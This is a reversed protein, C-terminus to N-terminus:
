HCPINTRVMRQTLLLCMVSPMTTERNHGDSWILHELRGEDDVTHCFFLDKDRSKKDHLFMLDGAADKTTLKM